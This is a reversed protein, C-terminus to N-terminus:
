KAWEAMYTNTGWGRISNAERAITTVDDKYARVRWSGMSDYSYLKNAGPPYMYAVMAHGKLRNEVPDRYRYSFVDAWVGQRNLGQRFAIATPLCANVEREMWREPNTPTCASLATAVALLKLTRTM